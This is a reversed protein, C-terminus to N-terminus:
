DDCVCEFAAQVSVTSTTPTTKSVDTWNQGINFTFATCYSSTDLTKEKVHSRSAPPRNWATIAPREYDFQAMATGVTGRVAAKASWNARVKKFPCPCCVKITGILWTSLQLKTIGSDLSLATWAVIRANFGDDLTATILAAPKADTVNLPVQGKIADDVMIYQWTTGNKEASGHGTYKISQVSAALLGLLDIEAVPSNRVFGYVNVGGQEGFPDRSLWRATSPHYYRYGYYLLGSEADTYKTSFRIPNAKALPGTVRLPEAFPGHEYRAAVTGNAADVLAAVNGNGDYSVFANTTTSGYYTVKLLGGVGGAGTL